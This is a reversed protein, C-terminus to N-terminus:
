QKERTRGAISGRHSLPINKAKEMVVEVDSAEDFLNERKRASLDPLRQEIITDLDGEAEEGGSFEDDDSDIPEGLDVPELSVQSKSVADFSKGFTWSSLRSSM